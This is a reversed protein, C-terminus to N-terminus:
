GGGWVHTFRPLFLSHFLMAAGPGQWKSKASMIRINGERFSNENVLLALNYKIQKNGPYDIGAGSISQQLRDLHDALFLLKGDILRVVEYYIDASMDPVFGPADASKNNVVYKQGLIKGTIM